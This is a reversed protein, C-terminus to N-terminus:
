TEDVRWSQRAKRAYRNWRKEFEPVYRQVWRMIMTHSMALGREEMMEALDRLKYRVYWRVCLIITEQEVHRGEFLEERSKLRAM